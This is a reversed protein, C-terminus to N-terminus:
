IKYSWYYPMSRSIVKDKNLDATEKDSLICWDKLKLKFDTKSLGEEQLSRYKFGFRKLMFPNKKVMSRVFDDSITDVIEDDMFIEYIEIYMM